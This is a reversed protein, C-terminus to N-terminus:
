PHANGSLTYTPIYDSVLNHTHLISGARAEVTVTGILAGYRLVKEGPMLNRRAVKYGLPVNEPLTVFDGDLEVAQGSFLQRRAVLCNDDPSMLLLLPATSLTPM